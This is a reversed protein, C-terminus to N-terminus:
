SAMSSVMASILLYRVSLIPSIIAGAIIGIVPSMAIFVITLPEIFLVGFM